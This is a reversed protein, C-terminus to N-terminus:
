QGAGHPFLKFALIPGLIGLYHRPNRVQALKEDGGAQSGARMWAATADSKSAPNTDAIAHPSSARAALRSAAGSCSASPTAGPRTPHFSSRDL